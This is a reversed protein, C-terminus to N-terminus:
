PTNLTFVVVSGAGVGSNAAPSYSSITGFAAETGSFVFPVGGHIFNNVATFTGYSGAALSGTTAPDIINTGAVLSGATNTVIYLNGAGLTGQVNAATISGGGTLKLSKNAGEISISGGDTLKLDLGSIEADDKFILHTQDAFVISATGSGGGRTIGAAAFTVTTGGNQTTDNLLSGAGSLEFKSSTLKGTATFEIGGGANTGNGLVISVPDTLTIQAGTALSGSEIALKNTITVNDASLYGTLTNGGTATFEAAGSSVETQGASSTVNGKFEAGGNLSSALVFTAAATFTAKGDAIIKASLAETFDATGKVSITGSATPTKTATLNGTIQWDVV